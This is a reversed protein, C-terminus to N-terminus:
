VFSHSFASMRAFLHIPCGGGVYCDNGPKFENMLLQRVNLLTGVVADPGNLALGSQPQRRRSASMVQNSL